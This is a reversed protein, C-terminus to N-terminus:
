LPLFTLELRVLGIFFTPNSGVYSFRVSKCDAVKLWETMEGKIIIIIKKEKSSQM